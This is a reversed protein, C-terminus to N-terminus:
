TVGPMSEKKGIIRERRNALNALGNQDQLALKVALDCGVLGLHKRLCCAFCAVPINRRADKRPQIM